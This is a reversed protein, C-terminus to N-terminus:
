EVESVIQNPDRPVLRQGICDVLFDLEELVIAGVLISERGPEVVASFVSDRGGYALHLDKVIAREATRGDAYRVKSTGSTELGLKQAVAEPIVLRTAGTDVVGRIRLRRVQDPLILGAEARYLDKHNALEVEVSFRGMMPEKTQTM